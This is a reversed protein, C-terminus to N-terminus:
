PRGWADYDWLALAANAALVGWHLWQDPEVRDDLFANVARRLIPAATKTGATIDTAPAWCSVARSTRTARRSRRVPPARCPRWSRGRPRASRRGTRRGLRGSLHGALAPRGAARVQARCGRTEGAGRWRQQCGPRGPRPAPGDPRVADGRHRRGRGPRSARPGQRIRRRARARPRGEPCARRPRGPRRDACGFAGAVSRGGGSGAHRRM